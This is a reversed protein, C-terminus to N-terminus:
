TVAFRLVDMPVAPYGGVHRIYNRINQSDFWVILFMIYTYREVSLM